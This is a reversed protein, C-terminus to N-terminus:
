SVRCQGSRAPLLISVYYGTMYAAKQVLVESLAFFDAAPVVLNDALPIRLSSVARHSKKSM